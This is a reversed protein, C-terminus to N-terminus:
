RTLQTILHRPKLAFCWDTVQLLHAVFTANSWLIIKNGIFSSHVFRKKHELDSCSFVNASSFTQFKILRQIKSTASSVQHHKTTQSVHEQINNFQAETLLLKGTEITRQVMHSISITQTKHVPVLLFFAFCLAAMLRNFWIPTSGANTFPCDESAFPNPM